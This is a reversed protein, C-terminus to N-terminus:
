GGSNWVSPTVHYRAVFGNGTAEVLIGFHELYQLNFEM